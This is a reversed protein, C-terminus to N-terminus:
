SLRTLSVILLNPSHGDSEMKSERSSGANQFEMKRKQTRRARNGNPERIKSQRRRTRSDSELIWIMVFLSLEQRTNSKRWSGM